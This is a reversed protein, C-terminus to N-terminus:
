QSARGGSQSPVHTFAQERVADADARQNVESVALHQNISALESLTQKQVTLVQALLTNTVDAQSHSTNEQTHAAIDAVEAQLAKVQIVTQPFETPSGAVPIDQANAASQLAVCAALASICVIFSKM